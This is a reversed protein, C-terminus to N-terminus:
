DEDTVCGESANKVLKFYKFLVGNKVPPAPQQWQKRRHEMEEATILVDISNKNADIQVIDDDKLLGINGGEFAEPTIHGVVFGHTGGSFRGDTILAVSAGLGAGYIASTPKLMEPMGPAGKPGVNRIVVVDGAKVKGSNIGHILEFEGDFVRAPGTFSEGEKGSIKAVSGQPALNGYLMQLHGTKKIPNEFPYIIDQNEFNIDAADAVNEALTKGTVTLCDGHLFGKQLLYKLITPLGGIAHVDEMMFKGSPKLDAIVSTEDSIKQFYDLDLKIGVSKAMAILHLVANTSGGLVMVIVVANHFAKETMIDRPKIDKELLLRIYKGADLCEQKKEQSLAPYTSSYPLSMGMAEIASALTNATYMGGCAGAGPCANEIIGQYDEETLNGAMKQGLAEFASVINLSQGKYNGSHISGGYVMIAPRNLRGMAMIAGPMNKDCGPLAILGDYYHGGCVTEISDAILDRSVLSYRMGETGNTIGDSIGITHFMLGVLDNNWVGKKVVEALENLHMNCTNGDYGMSVIGVQAKALDEKTLGIGYLMAQSAPQTPDQTITKSYKNLEM